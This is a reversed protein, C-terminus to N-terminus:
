HPQEAELPNVQTRALGALHGHRGIGAQERPEVCVRILPANSIAGVHDCQPFGGVVQHKGAACIQGPSMEAPSNDWLLEGNGSFLLATLAGSRYPSSVMAVFKLRRSATFSAPVPARMIDADAVSVM